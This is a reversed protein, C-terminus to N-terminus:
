TRRYRIARGDPAIVSLSGDGYFDYSRAFELIALYRSEQDMVAPACAMRTVALPGFRLREGGRILQYGGSFRNCSANGTARGSDLRLTPVAEALVPAGNIDVARWEVGGLQHDYAAACGGLALAAMLVIPRM